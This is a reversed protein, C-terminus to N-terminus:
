YQGSLNYYLHDVYNCAEPQYTYSAANAYFTRDACTALVLAVFWVVVAGSIYKSKTPHVVM